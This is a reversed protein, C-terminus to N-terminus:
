LALFGQEANPKVGFGDDYYGPNLLRIGFEADVTPIAGQEDLTKFDRDFLAVSYDQLKRLIRISDTINRSNSLEDLLEQAGGGTSEDVYPVVISQAANPIVHFNEGVSRFYYNLVWPYAKGNRQEYEQRDSNDNKLMEYASRGQLEGHFPYDLWNAAKASLEKFYQSYYRDLADQSQLDIAPNNQIMGFTIDRGIKIEPLAALGQENQIEYVYVSKPEVFEGNRNCRGAAQIISSLGAMARVVCAFSIDIGAEILQTSVCIVPRSSKPRLYECMRAIKNCRHRGCMSTSLHIVEFEESAGNQLLWKYIKRAESKLNVIALCNGNERAKELVAGAFDDISVPKSCAKIDVRHFVERESDSVSVLDPNPALLLNQRATAELKPQTATCLVVTSNMVYALFDVIENFLHICNTPLSQIEDFIVVSDAMNHFKRLKTGNASMVSELFQVMTTVIIPSDWREAALKRRSSSPGDDADENQVTSYHELLTLDDKSLDLMRRIVAATQSTISLYPIVYIIRKRHQELANHLAFRLSCLTKGGGTPVSLRYIGADRGSQRVCRNSIASRVRNMPTEQKFTSLKGELTDLLSQWDQKRPDRVSHDSFSAADLRDADVLKSFEEKCVLGLYWGRHDNPISRLLREMEEAVANLRSEMSLNLEAVHNCVENYHYREEDGSVGEVKEDFTGSCDLAICDPLSNHHSTIALQATESSIQICFKALQDDGLAQSGFADRLYRAGQWAHVVSGRVGGNLLYEQFSEAAKGLDHFAGILYSLDSLVDDFGQALEGTNVLHDQLPQVDGSENTRALLM